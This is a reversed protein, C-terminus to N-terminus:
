KRGKGAAAPRAAALLGRRAPSKLFAALGSFRRLTERGLSHEARCADREAAAEDLGLVSVFFDKLLYHRGCIEAGAKLGAPTLLICGYREQTLLGREALAKVAASVSPKSVGLRRSVGSPRAFGAGLSLAHAAELYDELSPSLEKTM